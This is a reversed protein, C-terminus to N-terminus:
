LVRTHPHKKKWTGWNPPNDISSIGDKGRGGDSIDYLPISHWSYDFGSLLFVVSVLVMAFISAGAKRAKM